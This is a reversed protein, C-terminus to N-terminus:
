KSLLSDLSAPHERTLFLKLGIVTNVLDMILVQYPKLHVLSGEGFCGCDSPLSRTALWTVCILLVFSWSLGALVAASLRTMYGTLMFVGFIFEVWPIIRAIWPVMMYPIVDYAAIGAQFNEVPDM